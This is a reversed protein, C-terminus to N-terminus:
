RIGKAREVLEAAVRLSSESKEQGSFLAAVADVHEKEDLTRVGTATREGRVAKEVSLHSDAMAAIQPLHTISIIQHSKALLRLTRGVAEAIRGSIGTDIEDFVLIPLRTSNALVSKLALMIRSIEGGSAIRALPKPPEGPNASILFEVRDCGNEFASFREGDITIDGEESTERTSRITFVADPIGLASLEAVVARELKGSAEARGASLKKAHESLEKRLNAIGNELEETRSSLNDQMALEDAIEEKFAILEDISRGYKKGTRQLLLQRERLEDLREQNFEIRDSYNRLSRSLEEVIGTANRIEELLPGFTRDIGALREFRHIADSLQVFASREDDYLLEGLEAGLTYLTEANELLVIEQETEEAEGPQLDLTELEEFQYELLSRKERIHEVDALLADLEKRRGTLRKRTERYSDALSGLAAYDDLLAIHTEPHLLLQHEHQGHLDILLDGAQKLVQLTCPSDNVFCRSQGKSSIERRLIIEEGHEIDASDLLRTITAPNEPLLIAEIVAKSSGSRVLDSSSRAGLVLGLAGILISKGAGTEGTIITLGPTFEITLEEILAFNKIYLQNLM